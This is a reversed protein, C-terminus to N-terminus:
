QSSSTSATVSTTTTASVSPALVKIDKVITTADEEATKLDSTATQIKSRADKLAATNSALVTQSGNDPQLNAVESSAASAQTGADSVKASFDALASTEASVDAGATETATIRAQLKTGVTTFSTVITNIRDAAAVISGQPVVLAYIRYAQTISQSDTRLSTTSTDAGINTQLSSLNGIESQIESSFSSKEADSLKAMGRIRSMLNNLTTVRNGIETNDRSKMTAMRAASTSAVMAAREGAFPRTSSARAAFAARASASVTPAVMQASAPLAIFLAGAIAASLSITRFLNKM